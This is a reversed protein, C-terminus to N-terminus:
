GIVMFRHRGYLDREITVDRGPLLTHAMKKLPEVYLPNIEFYLAGCPNLLQAALEMIAKYFKLPDDDPVFLALAPEYDLVRADMEERENDAIYPPNSVIIDYGGNLGCGGRLVDCEMFDVKVKYRTANERAVALAEGSIDVATVDAFKLRLALAVAICGSGTCVDLVRLDSRGGWRDTIIDVMQATEPRPILVSPTVKIKLGGWEEEGIIYQVPENQLLRGLIDGLKKSEYESLDQQAHLAIEVANLRTVHEMVLQAVAAAEGGDMVAILKDALAKRGASISLGDFIGDM